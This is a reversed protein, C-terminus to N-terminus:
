ENNVPAIFNGQDDLNELVILQISNALNKQYPTKVRLYNESFGYIMRRNREGEFLVRAIKGTNRAFFAEKKKDSLEQLIKRREKIVAKDPPTMLIGALTNERESYSFVHFYSIDIENLFTYTEQFDRDTEGPFGCIIDAAIMACSDKKRIYAVKEAFLEPPYKRKMDNLIKASGSQLPLHFHPMFVQSSCVLDIIERSLLDPEISSLRIRPLPAQKELVTLLDILKDEKGKGFDGINVGTLVIEKIGNKGIHQAMKLIDEVDGSRSRGRALPITCYSCYYDCGDQIKLFSRTRGYMSFSPYFAKDLNGENVCMVQNSRSFPEKLYEYLNYKEQNGLVIDVGEIDEIKHSELEAYCGIVAITAEPARRIAQRIAARSKSEASSTVMCTHIVYVDAKETCSVEVFGKGSIERAIQETEAFNLKCGLTKFAIKRKM